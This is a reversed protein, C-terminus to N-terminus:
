QQELGVPQAEARFGHEAVINYAESESATFIIRMKPYLRMLINNMTRTFMNGGVLIYLKVNPPQIKLARQAHRMADGKPLTPASLLIIAVEHDLTRFLAAAQDVAEDYQPWDWDGAHLDFILLTKDANAWHIDITM